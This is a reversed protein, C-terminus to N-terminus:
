RSRVYSRTQWQVRHWINCKHIKNGSARYFPKIDEFRTRALRIAVQSLYLNATKLSSINGNSYFKYVGHSTNVDFIVVLQLCKSLQKEYRANGEGRITPDKM